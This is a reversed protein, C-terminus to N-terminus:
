LYLSAHSLASFRKPIWAVTPRRADSLLNLALTDQAGNLDLVEVPLGAAAGVHRAGSLNSQDQQALALFHLPIPSHFEDAALARGARGSVVQRGQAFRRSAQTTAQCFHRRHNATRELLALGAM